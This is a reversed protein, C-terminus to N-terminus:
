DYKRPQSYLCKSIFSSLPPDMTVGDTQKYLTENRMQKFSVSVVDRRSSIVSIVITNHRTIANLLCFKQQFRNNFSLM